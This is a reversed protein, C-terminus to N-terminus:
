SSAQAASAERSRKKVLITLSEYKSRFVFSSIYETDLITPKPKSRDPPTMRHIRLKGSPSRDSKLDPVAIVHRSTHCLRTVPM